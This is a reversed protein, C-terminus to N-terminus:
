FLDWANQALQANKCVSRAYSFGYRMDFKTNSGYEVLFSRSFHYIATYTGDNEFFMELLVSGELEMIRDRLEQDEEDDILNRIEQAPIPQNSHLITLGYDDDIPWVKCRVSILDEFDQADEYLYLNNHPHWGINNIDDHRQTIHGNEFYLTPFGNNENTMTYGIFNGAQEATVAM